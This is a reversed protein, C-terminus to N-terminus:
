SRSQQLVIAAFFRYGDAQKICASKKVVAIQHHVLNTFVYRHQDKPKLDPKVVAYTKVKKIKVCSGSIIQREKM